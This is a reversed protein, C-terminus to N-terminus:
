VSRIHADLGWWEQLVIVGHGQGDADDPVALYGTATAGNAPFEVDPM